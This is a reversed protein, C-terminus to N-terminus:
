RSSISSDGWRMKYYGRGALILGGLIAGYFIVHVSAGSVFSGVTVAVAGIFIVLGIILQVIGSRKGAKSMADNERTAVRRVFDQAQQKEVGRKVLYDVIDLEPVDNALQKSDL